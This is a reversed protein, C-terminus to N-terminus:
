APGTAVNYAEELVRSIDGGCMDNGIISVGPLGQAMEQVTKKWPLYNTDLAPGATDRRYVKSWLPRTKLSFVKEFDTAQIDALEQDNFLSLDGPIITRAVFQNKEEIDGNLSNMYVAGSITLKEKRPAFFGLGARNFDKMNWASYIYSVQRHKLEALKVSLDKHSSKWFEAQEHAGATSIIKAFPGYKSKKSHLTHEGNHSTIDHIKAFELHVNKNKLDEVLAEVLKALGGKYYYLGPTHAGPLAQQWKARRDAAIAQVSAKLGQGKKLEDYLQPCAARFNLHEAEAYFVNRSFASGLTEAYTAGYTMKLFDFFSVSEWLNVKKKTGFIAALGGALFSFQDNEFEMFGGPAKQYYTDKVVYAKEDKCLQLGGAGIRTLINQLVPNELVLFAPGVELAVGEHEETHVQGGKRDAEFLTIDAEPHLEKTYWACVLGSLGAGIIAMKKM